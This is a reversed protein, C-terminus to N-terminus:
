RLFRRSTNSSFQGAGANRASAVCPQAPGTECASNALAQAISLNLYLKVAPSPMSDVIRLTEIPRALVLKRLGSVAEAFSSALLQDLGSLLVRGADVLAPNGDRSLYFSMAPWVFEYDAAASRLQDLALDPHREALVGAAFLHLKLTNFHKPELANDRLLGRVASVWERDPMTGAANKLTWLLYYRRDSPLADSYCPADTLQKIDAAHALDLLRGTCDASDTTNPSDVAAAAPTAAEVDAYVNNQEQAEPEPSRTALRQLLEIRFSNDNRFRVDKLGRLLYTQEAPLLGAASAERMLQRAIPEVITSYDATQAAVAAPILVLLLSYFIM